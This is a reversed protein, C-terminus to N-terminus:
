RLGVDAYAVCRDNPVVRNYCAFDPVSVRRLTNDFAHWEMGYRKENQRTEGHMALPLASTNTRPQEQIGQSADELHRINDAHTRKGNM